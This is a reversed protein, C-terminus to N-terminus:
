WFKVKDLLGGLKEDVKGRADEVAKNALENVKEQVNLLAKSVVSTANFLIKNFLTTVTEQINMKEGQEGIGNIEIAPMSLSLPEPQLPTMAQLAGGDVVVKKIVVNKSSSPKATTEEEAVETETKVPEKADSSATNKAINQQIQMVNSTSLDPMEYTLEIGNVSVEEVVITNTFLSKVNLKVFVRGLNILNPTKYGEPNAVTIGKVEAEGVFPAFRFEDLNVKTGVIKTGVTNVTTKVLPELYLFAGVFAIVLVLLLSLLSYKLAKM